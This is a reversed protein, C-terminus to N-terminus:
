HSKKGSVLAVLFLLFGPNTTLLGTRRGHCLCIFTSTGHASGCNSRATRAVEGSLRGFNAHGLTLFSFNKTEIDEHIDKHICLCFYLSVSCFSSGLVSRELMGLSNVSDLGAHFGVGIYTALLSLPGMKPSGWARWSIQNPLCELCKLQEVFLFWWLRKGTAIGNALCNEGIAGNWEDLYACTVQACLYSEKYPTLLLSWHTQPDWICSPHSKWICSSRLFLLGSSEWIRSFPYATKNQQTKWYLLNFTLYVFLEKIGLCRFLVVFFNQM